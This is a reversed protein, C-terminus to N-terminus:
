YLTKLLTNMLNIIEIVYNITIHVIRQSRPSAARTRPHETVAVANAGDMVTKIVKVPNETSQRKSVLSLIKKIVAKIIQPPSNWDKM